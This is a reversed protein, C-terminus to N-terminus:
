VPSPLNTPKRRVLVTVIVVEQCLAAIILRRFIPLISVLLEMWNECGTSGIEISMTGM